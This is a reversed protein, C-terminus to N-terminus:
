RKRLRKIFTVEDRNHIGYEKLPKNDEVLKEGEFYLWYHKWVYRWSVSVPGTSTRSLRLIVYRKIGQKLDQVTADQKVLIPMVEEDARKVNVVMAQGYEYAILSDVEELTIYPHLDKLLPDMTILGAVTDKVVHLVETHSLVEVRSAEPRKEGSSAKEKIEEHENETNLCVTSYADTAQNEENAM